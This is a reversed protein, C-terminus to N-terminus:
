GTLVQKARVLLVNSEAAPVYRDAQRNIHTQRHRWFDDRSSM